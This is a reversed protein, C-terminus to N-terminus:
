DTDMGLLRWVRGEGPDSGAAWVRTEVFDHSLARVMGDVALTFQVNGGRSLAVVSGDGGVFTRQSHRDLITTPEIALPVQWGLALPGDDPAIVKVVLGSPGAVEHVVAHGLGSQVDIGVGLDSGQSNGEPLRKTRLVQNSRDVNFVAADLDFVGPEDTPVAVTGIAFVGEDHDWDVDPLSVWRAAARPTPVWRMWLQEGSRDFARVWASRTIGQRICHGAVYVTHAGSVAVASAATDLCAQGGRATWRLAGGTRYSRVMWESGGDYEGLTGTAGVAYIPGDRDVDVDNAAARAADPSWRSTWAVAGDAAYRRVLWVADDRTSRSGAVVGASGANAVGTLTTGFSDTWAIRPQTTVAGGPVAGLALGTTVLVGGVIALSVRM